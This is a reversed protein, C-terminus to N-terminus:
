GFMKQALKKDKAKQIKFQRDLKAQLKPIAKDDPALKAAKKLDQAAQDYWKKSFYITARRFLAKVSNEDIALADNCCRLAHDPQELKTYALAMNLHLTLQVAKVEADDDPSLDYFKSCHSLAKAYRAAAHRYNGDHFLENAEAKNKMVIEMRRKKPLRRNDHDEEGDDNQREAAAKAAEEEMEKETQRAEAQVAELYGRCLENSREMVDKVKADMEALTAQDCEDSFIWDDVETLFPDLDNPLLSGHKSHRASRLELVHAELQNRAESRKAMADDLNAMEIEAARLRNRRELRVPDEMVASTRENSSGGVMAAGLSICTDDLSHSLVQHHSTTRITEQVSPIRCGGGLVEVFGIASDDKIDIQAEKMVREILSRLSTLEAECLTTMLDASATLKTETDDKVINEVTVSGTPLMSLVHKLKRCGQLLRLGKKSNPALNSNSFLTNKFHHWLRADVMGAGLCADHGCALVETKSEEKGEENENTQLRLVSVCTTAHGMDVVLVIKNQREPETAFKRGYVAALCDPVDVLDVDAEEWGGAAYAADM